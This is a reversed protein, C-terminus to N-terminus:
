KAPISITCKAHNTTIIIYHAFDFRLVLIHIQLCYYNNLHTAMKHKYM